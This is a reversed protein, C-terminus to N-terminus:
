CVQDGRNMITAGSQHVDDERGSYLITEGTQTRLRTFGSWRCESVVLVSIRYRQMYVESVVQAIKGNSYYMKRVKWCGIRLIIKPNALSM